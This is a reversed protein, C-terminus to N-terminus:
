LADWNKAADFLSVLTVPNLVNAKPIHIKGANIKGSILYFYARARLLLHEITVEHWDEVKDEPPLVIVVLYHTGHPTISKALTYVVETDSEQLMSLSSVSVGKLQINIENSESAASRGPGITKNTMKFDIQLGDYDRNAEMLAYNVKANLGYLYAISMKDKVSNMEPNIGKAM